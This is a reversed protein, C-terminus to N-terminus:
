FSQHKKYTSNVNSDEYYRLYYDCGYYEQSLEDFLMLTLAWASALPRHEDLFSRNVVIKETIHGSTRYLTSSQLVPKDSYYVNEFITSEFIDFDYKVSFDLPEENYDIGAIFSLKLLEVKQELTIRGLKGTADKWYVELRNKNFIPVLTFLRTTDSSYIIVSKVESSKNEFRDFYVLLEGSVTHMDLLDDESFAAYNFALEVPDEIDQKQANLSPIFLFFYLPLFFLAQKM